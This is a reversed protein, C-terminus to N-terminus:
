SYPTFFAGLYSPSTNYKTFRCKPSDDYATAAWRRILSQLQDDSYQSFDDRVLNYGHVVLSLFESCRHVETVESLTTLECYHSCVCFWMTAATMM